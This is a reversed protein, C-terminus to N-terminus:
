INIKFEECFQSVAEIVNSCNKYKEDGGVYVFKGDKVALSSYSNYSEDASFISANHVILDVRDSCSSLLFLCLIFVKKGM